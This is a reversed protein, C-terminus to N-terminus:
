SLSNHSTSMTLPTWTGFKHQILPQSCKGGPAHSRFGDFSFMRGCVPDHVTATSVLFWAESTIGTPSNWERMARGIMSDNFDIHTFPEPNSVSHCRLLSTPPLDRDAAIHNYAETSVNTM